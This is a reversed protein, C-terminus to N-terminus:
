FEIEKECACAEDYWEQGYLRILPEKLFRFVTINKVCGKTVADECINWRDYNLTEMTSYKKLRIPYLHCSIPKIFDIIKNAYLREFVCYCLGNEDINAFICMGDACLNTTYEDGFEQEWFGREAAILQAEYSLHQTILPAIINITYIEEDTLPAGLDGEICCKGKCKEIDCCFKEKFIDFSVIKKDIEIM